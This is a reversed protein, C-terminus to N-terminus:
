INSAFALVAFSIHATIWIRGSRGVSKSFGQTHTHTHTHTHTDCTGKQRAGLRLLLTPKRAFRGHRRWGPGVVFHVFARRLEHIVAELDAATPKYQFVELPTRAASHLSPGAFM